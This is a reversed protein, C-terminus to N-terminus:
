GHAVAGAVALAFTPYHTRKSKEVASEYQCAFASHFFRFPGVVPFGTAVDLSM